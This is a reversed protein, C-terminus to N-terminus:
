CAVKSSTASRWPHKERKKIQVFSALDRLADCKYCRLSILCFHVLVSYRIVVTEADPKSFGGIHTCSVSLIVLKIFQRVQKNDLCCSRSFLAKTKQTPSAIKLFSGQM